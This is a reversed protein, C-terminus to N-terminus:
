VWAPIDGLPDRVHDLRDLLETPDIAGNRHHEVWAAEEEPLRVFEETVRRYTRAYGALLAMVDSPSLDYLPDPDVSQRLIAVQEDTLREDFRWEADYSGDKPPPADGSNSTSALHRALWEALLRTHKRMTSPAVEGEWKRSRAAIKQRPGITKYQTRATLGLLEITPKAFAYDRTGTDTTGGPAHRSNAEEQELDALISRLVARLEEGDDLALGLRAAVAQVQRAAKVTPFQAIDVTGKKKNMLQRIETATATSTPPDSAPTM